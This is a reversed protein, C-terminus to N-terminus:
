EKKLLTKLEYYRAQLEPKLWAHLKTLEAFEEEETPEGKVSEDPAVEQEEGDQEEDKEEDLVLEKQFKAPVPKKALKPLYKEHLFPNFDKINSLAIIERTAKVVVPVYEDIEQNLPM